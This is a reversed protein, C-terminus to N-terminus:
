CPETSCDFEVAEFTIFNIVKRREWLFFLEADITGGSPLWQLGGRRASRSPLWFAKLLPHLSLDIQHLYTPPFTHVLSGGAVGGHGAWEEEGHVCGRGKIELVGGRGGDGGRGGLVHHVPIDYNGSRRTQASPTRSSVPRTNVFPIMINSLPM